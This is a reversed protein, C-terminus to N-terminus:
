TWNKCDTRYAYAAQVLCWHCSVASLFDMCMGYKIHLDQIHWVFKGPKIVDYYFEYWSTFAALKPGPIKALPSLFLRSLFLYLFHALVIAFTVVIFSM